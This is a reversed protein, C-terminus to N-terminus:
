SSAGDIASECAVAIDQLLEPTQELYWYTSAVSGHGLYTSLALMHRDVHDRSAGCRVLAGAAFSHRLDHLRPKRRGGAGTIGAQACLAQFTTLVTDRGLPSRRRLSVFLHDNDTALARRKTLYRELATLTSTHLPLWRSKRFKTQRIVLGGDTVDEFRLQLAESIRMGTVFLLGLLTRYTLPRISDTPKLTDTLRLITEIEDGTFLRPPHRQIKSPFHNRPMLDHRLDEAHLHEAFLGVTRLRRHCRQPSAGLAAWAVATEVRIYEDGRAMAFAAFSQLLEQTDVCKFGAAHRLAMYDQVTASLM